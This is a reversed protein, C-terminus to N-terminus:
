SSQTYSIIIESLFVIVCLVTCCLYFTFINALNKLTIQRHEPYTKVHNIMKMRYLELFNIYDRVSKEKFGFEAADINITNFTDIFPSSKPVPYALYYTSVKEPIMHYKSYGWEGDHLTNM